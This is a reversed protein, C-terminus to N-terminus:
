AVLAYAHYEVWIHPNCPPCQSTRLVSHNNEASDLYLSPRYDSNRAAFSLLTQMANPLTCLCPDIVSHPVASTMGVLGAM